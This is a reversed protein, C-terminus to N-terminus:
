PYDPRKHNKKLSSYPLPSVNKHKTNLPGNPLYNPIKLAVVMHSPKGEAM